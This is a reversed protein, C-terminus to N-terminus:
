NIKKKEISKALEKNRQFVCKISGYIGSLIIQKKEMLLLKKVFEWYGREKLMKLIIEVNFRDVQTNKKQFNYDEVNANNNKILLILSDRQFFFFFFFLYIEWNFGEYWCVFILDLKAYLVEFNV